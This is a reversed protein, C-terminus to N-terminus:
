EQVYTRFFSVIEQCKRGEIIEDIPLETRDYFVLGAQTYGTVTLAQDKLLEICKQAISQAEKLGDYESFVHTRIEVEPLGGTGLGRADRPEWVEYLVFPFTAGTRPVSDWIRTSVLATLGAVNLKNFVAVSVPSLSLYAM